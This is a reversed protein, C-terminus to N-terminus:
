SRPTAGSPGGARELLHLAALTSSDRVDGAAIRADLEPPTLGVAHLGIEDLEPTAQGAVLELALFVHFGQSSMGVANWLRGLPVLRSATFGTEERLEAAALQEPTGGPSGPPWGGAPLELSWAGVTHRWQEVLWYRAGDWPIVSAFDPRDVVGWTGRSGDPREVEDERVRLWPNEYAVRSSRVILPSVPALPLSRPTKVGSGPVAVRGM